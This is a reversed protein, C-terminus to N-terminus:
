RLGRESEWARVLGALTRNIPVALGHEDARNVVHGNLSDIETRRGADLDQRMSSTNEATTSAVLDLARTAAADRLEIGEERAVMATERAAESAIPGLDAGGAVGNEVGALATTPNIGANVALKRWLRRPMDTAVTTSLQSREFAAGVRDAGDSPGGAPDGLAIEGRGTCRVVGPAPRVAGWTCTGALVTASLRESLIAENGVGNQLSLCTEVACESLVAAARETDFGKVCVIVLEASDPPDLRARPHVTMEIEGTLRLGDARIASVHPDRGVLTVDHHPALLGGVLSGLSGAGFVVIDM